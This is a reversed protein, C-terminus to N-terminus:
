GYLILIVITIVMPIHKRTMQSKMTAAGYGATSKLLSSCFSVSISRLTPQTEVGLTRPVNSMRREERVM